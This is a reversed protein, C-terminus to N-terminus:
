TKLEGFALSSLSVRDVSMGLQESRDLQSGHRLDGGGGGGGGVDPVHTLRGHLHLGLHKVVGCFLEPKEFKLIVGNRQEVINLM